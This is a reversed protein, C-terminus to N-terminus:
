LILKRITITHTKIKQTLVSPICQRLSFVTEVLETMEQYIPFTDPDEAMPALVERLGRYYWALQDKPAHFREWVREGLIRQDRAISRLNAVKDALFLMQAAPPAAKIKEMTKIRADKWSDGKDKSQVDVLATVEAGFRETLEAPTTDTDELVDHLVGAMLQIKTANMATLITLVELPHVIYPLSTGKRLQGAHRDIAFHLAQDLLDNEKQIICDKQEM